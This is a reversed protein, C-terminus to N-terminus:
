DPVFGLRGFIFSACFSCSSLSFRILLCGRIFSSLRTLVWYVALALLWLKSIALRWASASLMLVLFSLSIPLVYLMGHLGVVVVVFALGLIHLLCQGVFFACSSFSSSSLLSDLLVPELSASGMYLFICRSALIM